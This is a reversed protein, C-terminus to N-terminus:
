DQTETGEIQDEERYGSRILVTNAIHEALEDIVDFNFKGETSGALQPYLHPISYLAVAREYSSIYTMAIVDQPHRPKMYKDLDLVEKPLDEKNAIGTKLIAAINKFQNKPSITYALKIKLYKNKEKAEAYSEQIKKLSTNNPPLAGHSVFQSYEQGTDFMLKYIMWPGQNSVGTDTIVSMLIGEVVEGYQELEKDQEM